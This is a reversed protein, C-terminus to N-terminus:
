ADPLLHLLAMPFKIEADAQWAAIDLQSGLYGYSAAVTRMGAARGAVIDREDDGVYVCDGPDVGLRKAAELLPAPHPKAHPTTDGSVIVAAGAFLAPACTTM